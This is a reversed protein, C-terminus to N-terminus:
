AGFVQRSSLRSQRAERHDWMKDDAKESLMDAKEAEKNYEANKPEETYSDPADGSMKSERFDNLNESTVTAM